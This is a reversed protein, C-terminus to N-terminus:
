CREIVQAAFTVAGVAASATATGSAVKPPVISINSAQLTYTFENFESRLPTTNLHLLSAIEFTPVTESFLCSDELPTGKQVATQTVTYIGFGNLGIEFTIDAFGPVNLVSPTEPPTFTVSWNVVASLLVASNCHRLDVTIFALPALTGGNTLQIPFPSSLPPTIPPLSLVANQEAVIIRRVRSFWNM